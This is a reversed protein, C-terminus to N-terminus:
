PLAPVGATLLAAEASRRAQMGGLVRRVEVATPREGPLCETMAGLLGRWERDLTGPVVPPRSLRALAAEVPPGAYEKRGTLLELVMLGFAYVDSATTVTEGRVQEPSLYAATGLLVGTRTLGALARSRAIGFDALIAGGAGDLLVNAPKLDRHVVGAAHVHALADALHTAVTLVDVRVPPRPRELSGGEAVPMVCWPGEADVDADWVPIVRPHALTGLLLIESRFRAAGADDVLDTSGVGAAPGASAGGVFAKVAVQRHLRLDDARWVEATGGRGLLHVARYRGGWVRVDM